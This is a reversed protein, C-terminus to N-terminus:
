LDGKYLECVEHTCVSRKKPDSSNTKRKNKKKKEKKGRKEKKQHQEVKPLVLKQKLIFAAVCSLQV